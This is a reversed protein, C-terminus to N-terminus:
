KIDIIKFTILISSNPPIDHYINENGYAEGDPIKFTYIINKKCGIIVSDWGKIVENKGVVFSFLEDNSIKNFNTHFFSEDLIINQMNYIKFALFVTDGDRVTKNNCASLLTSCILLYYAIHNIKNYM